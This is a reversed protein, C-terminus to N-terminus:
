VVLNYCGHHRWEHTHGKHKHKMFTMTSTDDLTQKEVVAVYKGEHEKM